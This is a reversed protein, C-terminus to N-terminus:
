STPVLRGSMGALWYPQPSTPQPQQPSHVVVAINFSDILQREGTVLLVRELFKSSSLMRLWSGLIVLSGNHSRSLVSVFRITM